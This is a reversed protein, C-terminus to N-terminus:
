TNKHNVLKEVSGVAKKLGRIEELTKKIDNTVSNSSTTKLAHKRLPDNHIQLLVSQMYHSYDPGKNTDTALQESFGVISKALASKYAYDEAINKQKVYQGASFWAGGILIPLLSMRSIVASLELGQDFAVWIGNSVSAIVFVSAAILWGVKSSFGNARNYQATFAASLGEATTYELALKSKEILQEASSLYEQHNIEFKELKQNYQLTLADQDELQAERLSIKKSFGDIVESHSKSMSLLEEIKESRTQDDSLMGELKSRREISATMLQTLNEEQENLRDIKETLQQHLSNIEKKLESSESKIATVDNVHNSLSSARRQLDNIHEDFEEKRENSHRIGINRLTPKIKDITLALHQLDKNLVYSSLQSLLQVLQTRETFTSKQICKATAGTLASIDVLIAQIGSVIGKAVYEQENGYKKGAYDSIKIRRLNQKIEDRHKRLQIITATDM